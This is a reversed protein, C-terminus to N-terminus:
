KKLRLFFFLLFIEFIKLFFTNIQKWTRNNYCKRYLYVLYDMSLARSSQDVVCSAYKSQSMPARRMLFPIGNSDLVSSHPSWLVLRDNTYPSPLLEHITRCDDGSLSACLDAPNPSDLQHQFHFRCDKMTALEIASNAVVNYAFKWDLIPIVQKFLLVVTAIFHLQFDSKIALFCFFVFRVSGKVLFDVCM